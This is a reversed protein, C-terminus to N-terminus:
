YTQSQLQDVTKLVLQQKFHNFISVKRSQHRPFDNFPRSFLPSDLFEAPAQAKITSATKPM